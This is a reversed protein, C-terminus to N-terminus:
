AATATYTEGAGADELLERVVDIRKTGVDVGVRVSRTKESFRARADWMALGMVYGALAGAGFGGIIAQFMLVAPNASFLSGPLVNVAILVGLAAGVVIGVVGGVAGVRWDFIRRQVGVEHSSGDEETEVVCIEEPEFHASLLRQVARQADKPDDFVGGVRQIDKM